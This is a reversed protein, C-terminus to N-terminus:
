LHHERQQFVQILLFFAGGAKLIGLLGIILETSREISIGVVENRTVGKNVLVHAVQNARENLERYTLATGNYFVAKHNPTRKVQEEFLQILTKDTLYNSINISFDDLIVEKESETVIEIEKILIEPNKVIQRVISEVHKSLYQIFEKSYVRNNFYFKFKLTNSPIIMLSFNYHTQEFVTFDTIKIEEKGSNESTPYNQFIVFHDLLGSKLECQAQIEALSTYNYEKSEVARQQTDKILDIFSQNEKSQIRTPITNIFIGVMNEIDEIETPRVQVVSGFVVDNTNNYRQLLIGWISTLLNSMTVQQKTSINILSRMVKEDFLVSVEDLKYDQNRVNPYQSPIM